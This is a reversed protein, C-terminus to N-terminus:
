GYRILIQNIAESIDENALEEHYANLSDSLGKNQQKSDLTNQIQEELNSQRRWGELHFVLGEKKLFRLNLEEQGPLSHYVFIPLKKFLCESITVGGPKTIIADSEHYLLNMEEKSSIYSLPIIWPNELEKIFQFLKANKGCLVKYQIHGKPQLKQVFKKLEGTGLNGGSLLISYKNRKKTKKINEKINEKLKPHIPIGTVHIRNSEIGRDILYDKMMSSPVFHYDIEKIGWIHNIFYDTYVNIVPTSQKTRQKIQSLMYSPLAHTCIILRPNKEEILKKMWFLFLLEYLRFRKDNVKNEFVSKRYIWSYFSPFIHIWKLYVASVFAETKGYSYSLIDVKECQFSDDIEQLGEMIGDAVHHHGSSIQLFPMFLISKM